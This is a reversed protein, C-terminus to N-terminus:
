KHVFKNSVAMFYRWSYKQIYEYSIVVANAKDMTRGFFCSNKRDYGTLVFLGGGLYPLPTNGSEAEEAQMTVTFIGLLIALVATNKMCDEEEM